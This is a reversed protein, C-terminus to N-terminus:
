FLYKNRLPGLCSPPLLFMGPCKLFGPANFDWYPVGDEPLNPHNLLFDAINEAQKLFRQDKTFRYTM